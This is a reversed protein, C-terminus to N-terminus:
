KKYLFDLFISTNAQLVSMLIVTKQEFYRYFVIAPV